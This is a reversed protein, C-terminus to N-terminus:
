AALDAVVADLVPFGANTVRLWGSATTEVAGQARLTSRLRTMDISRVDGSWQADAAFFAAATGAAQGMTMCTGM